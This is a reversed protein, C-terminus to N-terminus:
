LEALLADSGDEALLGFVPPSLPVGCDSCSLEGPRGLFVGILKFFGFAAWAFSYTVSSDNTSFKVFINMPSRSVLIFNVNSM